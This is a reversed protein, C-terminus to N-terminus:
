RRRPHLGPGKSHRGVRRPIARHPLRAGVGSLVAGLGRHLNLVDPAQASVVPEHPRHRRDQRHPGDSEQPKTHRLGTFELVARTGPPEHAALLLQLGLNAATTRTMPLVTEHRLEALVLEGACEVISFEDVRYPELPAPAAAKAPPRSTSAAWEQRALDVDQVVRQGNANLGVSRPMRGRAVAKSVAQPSVGVLRGFKSLSMEMSM